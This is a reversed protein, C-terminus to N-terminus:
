GRILYYYLRALSQIYHHAQHGGVPIRLLEFVNTKITNIGYRTTTAYSFGATKVIEITDQNYHGYPYAFGTIPSKLREQLLDRSKLIFDKQEVKSYRDLHVHDHAHSGIEWGHDRLLKIGDWDLFDGPLKDGSEKWIHQKKNIGESVIYITAPVNEKQLVPLGLELNDSYGDDFTLCAWNKDPQRMADSVTTFQYGLRKLCLIHFRLLKPSVFMSRYRAHIPPRGVRHYYVIITKNM